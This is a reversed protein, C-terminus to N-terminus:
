YSKRAQLAVVISLLVFAWVLVGVIKRYPGTDGKKDCKKSKEIRGKMKGTISVM